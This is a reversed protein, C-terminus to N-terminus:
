IENAEVSKQFMCKDKILKKHQKAESAKEDNVSGASQTLDGHVVERHAAGHVLGQSQHLGELVGIFLSLHARSFPFWAFFSYSCTLINM